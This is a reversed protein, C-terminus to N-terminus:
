SLSPDAAAAESAPTPSLRTPQGATLPVSQGAAVLKLRQYEALVKEVYGGDDTEPGAGVYLRLGGDVSGARQICEELVKVGVRLNSVPDFAALKGGFLGYKDAHVRTMVQMLGQAGMPSQAFPNFSSEVAMVALILTPDIKARTGLEFSEAVLASIPEPAVRYKRSLWYALAAQQQPLDRPDAATAREIGTLDAVIGMADSQRAQLWSILHAEGSVRLEPKFSVAAVAFVVFLGLLAFGNHTIEFFGQAVDSSFTRVGDRFREFATM